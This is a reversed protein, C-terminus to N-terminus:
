EADAYKDILVISSKGIAIIYNKKCQHQHVNIVKVNEDIYLIEAVRMNSLMHNQKRTFQMYKQIIKLVCYMLGIILILSLLTKSIVILEM